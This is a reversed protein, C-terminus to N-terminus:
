LMVRKLGTHGYYAVSSVYFYQSCFPEVILALKIYQLCKRLSQLFKTSFDQLIEPMFEIAYKIFFLLINQELSVVM